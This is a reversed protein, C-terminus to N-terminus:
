SYSTFFSWVGCDFNSEDWPWLSPEVYVFDILTIWRILLLFSPNGNHSLLNLVQSTEMLIRTWDRAKSLPNLIWCQQSSHYIDCTHSPNLTATATAYAPLQLELKVGPVLFKGLGCTHNYFVFVFLFVFVVFPFVTHDDWYSCFFMQCFEVDM